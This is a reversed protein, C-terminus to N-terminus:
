AGTRLPGFGLPNPVVSIRIDGETTRIVVPNTGSNLRANVVELSNARDVYLWQGETVRTMIEGEVVEIDFAGSSGRPVRYDIDGENGILLNEGRQPHETAVLIGGRDTRLDVPGTNNLIEVSGRPTRVRVSGLEPTEIRIHTQMYWPEPGEYSSRVTLTELPGPGPQLDANWDALTLAEYPESGRLYGHTSERIVEVTTETADPNGIVTINGGISAIDVDISGRTRFQVVGDDSRVSGRLGAAFSSATADTVREPNNVGSCGLPLLGLLILGGLLRSRHRIATM